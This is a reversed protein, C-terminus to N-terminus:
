RKRWWFGPACRSHAASATINGGRCRACTAPQRWSSFICITGKIVTWWEKLSESSNLINIVTKSDGVIAYFTIDIEGDVPLLILRTKEMPMLIEMRDESLVDFVKSIYVKKEEAATLKRSILQMEVKCGPEILKTLM